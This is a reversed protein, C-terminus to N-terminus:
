NNSISPLLKAKNLSSFCKTRRMFFSLRGEGCSMSMETLEFLLTRSTNLLNLSCAALLKVFFIYALYLLTDLMLKLKNFALPIYLFINYLKMCYKTKSLAFSVHVYVNSM